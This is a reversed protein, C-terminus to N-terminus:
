VAVGCKPGFEVISFSCGSCSCIMCVNHRRKSTHRAISADRPIYFVSYRRVVVEHYYTEKLMGLMRRLVFFLTGDKETNQPGVWLNAAEDFVLLLLEETKRNRKPRQNLAKMLNAACQVINKRVLPHDALIRPDRCAEEWSSDETFVGIISIAKRVLAEMFSIRFASRFDSKGEGLLNLPKKPTM